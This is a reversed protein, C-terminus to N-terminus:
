YKINFNLQSSTIIKETLEIETYQMCKQQHYVIVNGSMHHYFRTKLANLLIDHNSNFMQLVFLEQIKEELEEAMKKINRKVKLM